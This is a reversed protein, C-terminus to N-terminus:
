WGREMAGKKMSDFLVLVTVTYPGVRSANALCGRYFGAPGETSWIKRFCDQVGSYYVGAGDRRPQNMMRSAVLDFPQMAAVGALAACLSALLSAALTRPHGLKAKVADFVSLQAASYAMVRLLFANADRWYGRVGEARRIARLSARLSGHPNQYGLALLPSTSYNQAQSKILYFPNGVLAGCLGSFLALSFNQANAALPTNQPPLARKSTEYICLRTGTVTIQLAWAATIGRYVGKWGEYKHISLISSLIHTYKTEYARSAVEGQIQLRTKVVDIPHFVSISVLASVGGCM